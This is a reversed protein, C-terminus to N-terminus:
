ICVVKKDGMSESILVKIKGCWEKATYHGSRGSGAWVSSRPLVM